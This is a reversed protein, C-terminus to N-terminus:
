DEQISMILKRLPLATSLDHVCHWRRYIEIAQDIDALADKHNRVALGSAGLTRIQARNEFTIGLMRKDSTGSLLQISQTLRSTAIALQEKSLSSLDIEALAVYASGLNGFCLGLTKASCDWDHSTLLDQFLDIASLVRSYSDSTVEAQAGVYERIFILCRLWLWDESQLTPPKQQIIEGGIRQCFEFLDAHHLEAHRYVLNNCAAVVTAFVSLDEYSGFASEKLGVLDDFLSITQSFNTDARGRERFYIKELFVSLPLTTNTREYGSGNLLALERYHACADAVRGALLANQTLATLSLLVEAKEAEYIKILSDYSEQFNMAGVSLAVHSFVHPRDATKLQEQLVEWGDITALLEEKLATLQLRDADEIGFRRAASDVDTRDHGTLLGDIENPESSAIALALLDGDTIGLASAFRRITTGHPNRIWGNELRSIEGKRSNLADKESPWVLQALNAQSLRAQLRRVKVLQGLM